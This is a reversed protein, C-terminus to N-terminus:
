TVCEWDVPVLSQALFKQFDGQKAPANRRIFDEIYDCASDITIANDCGCTGFLELWQEITLGFLPRLDEDIYRSARVGMNTMSAGERYRLHWHGIVCLPTGCGNDFRRMTFQHPNPSERLATICERLRAVNIM